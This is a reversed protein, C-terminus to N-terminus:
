CPYWRNGLDAINSTEQQPVMGENLSGSTGFEMTVQKFAKFKKITQLHRRSTELDFPSILSLQLDISKSSARERSGKAYRVYSNVHTDALAVVKGILYGTGHWTTCVPLQLYLLNLFFELILSKNNPRM